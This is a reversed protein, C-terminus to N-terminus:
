LINMKTNFDNVYHRSIPIQEKSERLSVNYTRNFWPEIHEIMTLNIMFSRHCRFLDTGLFMQELDKLKYSTLYSGHLTKIFVGKNEAKIFIIENVQVPIIKGDHHICIKEVTKKNVQDFMKKIHESYRNDITTEIRNLCNDIREDSVPKLIYDIANLEFAKIAYKDYATVFVIRKDMGMDYLKKAIEIGSMGPMNVDLFIIEAENLQNSSFIEKSNACLDIVEFSSNKGILYKLEDRAPKEDDVIICKIM